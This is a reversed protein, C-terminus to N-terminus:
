KKSAENYITEIWRDTKIFGIGWDKWKDPLGATKLDALSKGDAIGQKVFKTTELLMAHFNRLDEVNALKGHGPILKADPPVKDLVTAVTTIYGYVSGGSKLDVFPFGGNFFQDGMHIVNAGTFYIVSDGDTHGPGHHLLKIEEGNFHVSASQDFTIVPLAEKKSDPADALRKRVNRHAIITADKAAFTANGGTHDGHHHTNLVFKLKGPNLQKVAAEIKGALPAFQDDVILIGDSGVSVGINGGAGEFMYINGAVPTVKIEVKDFDRQALVQTIALTCTLSVIWRSKM